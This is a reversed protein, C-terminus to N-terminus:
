IGFWINLARSIFFTVAGLYFMRSRVAAIQILRGIMVFLIIAVTIVSGMVLMGAHQALNAFDTKNMHMYAFGFLLFGVLMGITGFLFEPSRIDWRGVIRGGVSRIKELTEDRMFEPTIPVFSATDLIQCLTEIKV